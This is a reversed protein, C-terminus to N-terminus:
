STQWRLSVSTRIPVLPSDADPKGDKEYAFYPIFSATSCSKCQGTMKDKVSPHSTVKKGIGIGHALLATPGTPRAICLMNLCDPVLRSYSPFLDPILISCTHFLYPVLRFCTHFLYPVLRSCTPFLDSCPLFPCSIAYKKHSGM